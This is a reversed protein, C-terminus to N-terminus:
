HICNYDSILRGGGQMTPNIKITLTRGVSAFMKAALTRKVSVKFRKLTQQLRCSTNTPPPDNGYLKLAAFLVNKNRGLMLCEWLVHESDQTEVGCPCGKDLNFVFRNQYAQFARIETLFHKTDFEVRLWFLKLRETIRPFFIRGETNNSSPWPRQSPSSEKQSPYRKEISKSM